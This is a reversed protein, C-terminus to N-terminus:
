DINSAKLGAARAIGWAENWTETAADNFTGDPNWVDVGICKCAELMVMNADCYDHSHCSLLDPEARNAKAAANVNRAGIEYELQNCFARALSKANTM